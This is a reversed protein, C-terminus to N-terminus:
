ALSNIHRFLSARQFEEAFVPFASLDAAQASVQPRGYSALGNRRSLVPQGCGEAMSSREHPSWRLFRCCSGPLLVSRRCDGFCGSGSGIFIPGTSTSLKRAIQRAEDLFAASRERGIELRALFAAVVAFEGLFHGFDDLREALDRFVPQGIRLAGDFQLGPEAFGIEIEPRRRRFPEGAFFGRRDDRGGWAVLAEGVRFPRLVLEEIEEFLGIQQGGVPGVLQDVSAASRSGCM